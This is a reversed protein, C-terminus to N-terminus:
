RDICFAQESDLLNPMSSCLEYCSTSFFMDNEAFFNEKLFSEPGSLQVSKSAELKDLVLNPEKRNEGVM